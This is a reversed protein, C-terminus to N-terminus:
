GGASGKVCQAAAQFYDVEPFGSPVAFLGCPASLVWFWGMSDAGARPVQAEPSAGRVEQQLVQEQDQWGAWSRM